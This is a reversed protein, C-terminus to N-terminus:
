LWGSRGPGGRLKSRIGLVADAIMSVDPSRDPFVLRFRAGGGEADEVIVRGGHAAMTRQVIALGLGSGGGRREARWFRQFVLKRHEPPIGPGGDSVSLSPPATEVRLVVATGPPTHRLANDVVNRVAHFLADTQGRVMVPADPAEVEVTRHARVAMPGLFAAVDRALEGLDAAAGPTVVLAEAQAVRLLQEM